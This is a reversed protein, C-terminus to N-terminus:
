DPYLCNGNGDCKCIVTEGDPNTWTMCVTGAPKGACPNSTETAVRTLIANFQTKSPPESVQLSPPLAGAAKLAKASHKKEAAPKRSM